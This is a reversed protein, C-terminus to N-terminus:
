REIKMGKKSLKRNLSAMFKQEYLELIREMPWDRMVPDWIQRAPRSIHSTTDDVPVGIAFLFRRMKPTVKTRHRRDHLKVLRSVNGDIFGVDLRLNNKNVEYRSVNVMRGMPRLKTASKTRKPKILGKRKGSKYRKVDNIGKKARVKRGKNIRPTVPARRKWRAQSGQKIHGDLDEKIHYGVSGLASAAAHHAERPFARMMDQMTDLNEINLHVKM